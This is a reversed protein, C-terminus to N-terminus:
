FPMKKMDEEIKKNQEEREQQIELLTKEDDEINANMLKQVVDDALEFGFNNLIELTKKKAEKQSIKFVNRSSAKFKYEKDAEDYEFININKDTMEFRLNIRRYFQKRDEDKISTYWEYIPKSTTLIITDGIFAKNNYRSQTTSKTHNDLLKLFDHYKFSDDRIDDLIMVDEGEYDQMPDNSSSSICFSKHTNACYQKAYTTKGVGAPGSIMIVTINRDKDTMVKRRYFELANLIKNKHIAYTRIDIYKSLNYGRIIGKDIGELIEDINRSKQIQKEIEEIIKGYDFNSRVEEPSYQYKDKDGDTRHLLYSLKSGWKSKKINIYQPEDKFWKCLSDATMDSNLLKVMIHVHPKVGEDKDHVIGAYEVPKNDLMKYIDELPMKLHELQQNYEFQKAM